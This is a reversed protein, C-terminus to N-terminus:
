RSVESVFEKQMEAWKRIADKSSVCCEARWQKDDARGVLCYAQTQILGAIKFDLSVDRVGHINTLPKLMRWGEDLALGPTEGSSHLVEYTFAPHPLFLVELRRLNPLDCLIDAVLAVLKAMSDVESKARQVHLAVRVDRVKDFHPHITDCRLKHRIEAGLWTVSTSTINIEHCRYGFFVSAFEQSVQRSTLLLPLVMDHDYDWDLDHSLIRRGLMGNSTTTVFHGDVLSRASVFDNPLPICHHYVHLRLEAPLDMLRFSVEHTTQYLDKAVANRAKRLPAHLRKMSRAGLSEAMESFPYMTRSPRSPDTIMHQVLETAISNLMRQDDSRTFGAKSCANFIRDNFFRRQLGTCLMTRTNSKQSAERPSSPKARTELMKQIGKAVEPAFTFTNQLEDLGQHFGDM